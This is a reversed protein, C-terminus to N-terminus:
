ILGGKLIRCMNSTVKKSPKSFFGYLQDKNAFIKENEDQQMEDTIM